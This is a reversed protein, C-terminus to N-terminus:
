NMSDFFKFILRDITQLVCARDKVLYERSEEPRALVREKPYIFRIMSLGQARFQFHPGHIGPLTFHDLSDLYVKKEYGSLFGGYADLPVDIINGIQKEIKTKPLEDITNKDLDIGHQRLLLSQSEDFLETKFWNYITGRSIGIKKAFDEASIDNSKLIRMLKDGQPTEM